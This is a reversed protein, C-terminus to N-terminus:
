GEFLSHIFICTNLDVADIESACEVISSRSFWDHNWQEFVPRLTQECLPMIVSMTHYQDHLADLTRASMGLVFDHRTFRICRASLRPTDPDHEIQIPFPVGPLQVPGSEPNPEPTEGFLLDNVIRDTIKTQHPLLPM